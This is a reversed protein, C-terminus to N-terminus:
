MASVVVNGAMYGDHTMAWANSGGNDCPLICKWHYVGAKPATFSFVTVSAVGDSPAAKLTVNVGLSTSTFTHPATDLNYVTVIVKQGAVAALNAPLIADHTKKDSGRLSDPVVVMNIRAPALAAPATSHASRAHPQAALVVSSVGVSMIGVLTVVGVLKRVKM